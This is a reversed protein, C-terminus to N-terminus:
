FGPVCDPPIVLSTQTYEPKQIRHLCFDKAKLTPKRYKERETDFVDFKLLLSKAQDRKLSLYLKVSTQGTM